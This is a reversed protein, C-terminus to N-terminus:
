CNSTNRLYERFHRVLGLHGVGEKEFFPVYDGIVKLIGEGKVVREHMEEFQKQYKDTIM